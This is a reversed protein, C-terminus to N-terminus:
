GNVGRASIASRLVLALVSPPLDSRLGPDASGFREACDTFGGVDHYPPPTRSIPSPTIHV